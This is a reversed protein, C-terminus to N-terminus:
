HVTAIDFDASQQPRFMLPHQRNGTLEGVRKVAYADLLPAIIRKTKFLDARGEGLAAM